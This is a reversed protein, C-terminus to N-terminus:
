NERGDWDVSDVVEAGKPVTFQFLGDNVPPNLHEDSFSFDLLSQDRGAIKLQKVSGDAAILMEISEYPARDNKSRATLWAGGGGEHTTFDRFEKKMDLRGLLFALPARMDDTNKLPMKEVRNESASYLYATKGDSIFLKGAPRAYDWRMKREKRLTLKGAEPPRFHGQMNYNEVFEVSLTQAANYRTEVRKILEDTATACQLLGAALLFACFPRM